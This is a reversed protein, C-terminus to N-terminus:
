EATHIKELIEDVVLDLPQNADIIAGGAKSVEDAITKNQSLGLSSKMPKVSTITPVHSFGSMFCTTVSM